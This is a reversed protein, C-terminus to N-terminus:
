KLKGKVTLIREQVSSDDDKQSLQVLASTENQIRAINEGGQGFIMNATSHPIVLKVQYV